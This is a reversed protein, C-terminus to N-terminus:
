YKFRKEYDKHNMWELIVSIIALEDGKLSYLLRWANPLNYKRLNNIKYKKLYEKPWLPKPVKIGCLPDAKLDGIAREIFKRLQRDEFKGKELESYAKKLKLDVFAVQKIKNM